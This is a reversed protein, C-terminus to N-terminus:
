LNRLAEESNAYMQAAAPPKTTDPPIEYPTLFHMGKGFFREAAMVTETGIKKTAYCFAGYRNVGRQMAQALKVRDDDSECEALRARWQKFADVKSNTGARKPYDVWASEFDPTYDLRGKEDSKGEGGLSSSSGNQSVVIEKGKGSIRSPYGELTDFLDPEKPRPVKPNELSKVGGSARRQRIEERHVMDAVALKGSGVLRILIGGTATQAGGGAGGM